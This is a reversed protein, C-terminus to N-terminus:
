KWWLATSITDTLAVSQTCTHTHTHTHTSPPITQTNAALQFGLQSTIVSENVCTWELSSLFLHQSLSLQRATLRPYFFSLIYETQQMFNFELVKWQIFNGEVRQLLAVSLYHALGATFCPKSRASGHREHQYTALFITQHLHMEKLKSQYLYVLRRDSFLGVSATWCRGATVFGDMWVCVCVCVCM